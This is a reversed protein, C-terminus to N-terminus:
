LKGIRDWSQADIGVARLARASPRGGNAAAAACANAGRFAEAMAALRSRLRRTTSRAADRSTM